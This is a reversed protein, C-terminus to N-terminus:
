GRGGGLRRTWSMGLGSGPVDVGKGMRSERSRPKTERTRRRGHSPRVRGRPRRRPKGHHPLPAAECHSGGTSVGTSFFLCNTTPGVTNPLDLEGKIQPFFFFKRHGYFPSCIPSGNSCRFLVMEGLIVIKYPHPIPNYVTSSARLANLWAENSSLRSSSAM